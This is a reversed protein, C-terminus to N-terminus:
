CASWHQEVIGILSSTARVLIIVCSKGWSVRVAVRHCGNFLYGKQNWQPQVVPQSDGEAIPRRRGSRMIVGDYSTRSEAEWQQWAGKNVPKNLKADHWTAVGYSPLQNPAEVTRLGAWAHGSVKVKKILAFGAGSKPSTILSKVIMEEIIRFDKSEVKEGPAIPHKPVQYAPAAMKHGDHVKNRISIGATCKKLSLLPRGGFVTRLPFGHLYPIPEGNMEWAILAPNDTM